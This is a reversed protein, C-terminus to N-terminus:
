PSLAGRWWPPGTERRRAWESSSVLWPSRMYGRWGSYPVMGRQGLNCSVCTLLDSYNEWIWKVQDLTFSRIRRWRRWSPPGSACSGEFSSKALSSGSRWMAKLNIISWCQCTGSWVAECTRGLHVLVRSEVHPPKHGTNHNKVKPVEDSIFTCPNWKFIKNQM